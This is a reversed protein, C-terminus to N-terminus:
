PKEVDPQIAGSTQAVPRASPSSLAAVAVATTAARNGIKVGTSGYQYMWGVEWSGDDCQRELLARRDEECPLGVAACALVRMALDM